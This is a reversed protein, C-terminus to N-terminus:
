ATPLKRFRMQAIRDFLMRDLGILDIDDRKLILVGHRWYLVPELERRRRAIEDETAAKEKIPGSYDPAPGRMTDGASM